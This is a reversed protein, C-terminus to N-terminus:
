FCRLARTRRVGHGEVCRLRNCLRGHVGVLTPGSEVFVTHIADRAGADQEVVDRQIPVDALLVLREAAGETLQVIVDSETDGIEIGPDRLQLAFVDFEDSRLGYLSPSVRATMISPGLRSAISSTSTFCYPPLRGHFDCGEECEARAGASSAWIGCSFAGVSTLGPLM